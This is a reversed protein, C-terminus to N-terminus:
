KGICFSGFVEDLVDEVDVKGILVDLAHVARRIDESVFELGESGGVLRSLARSCDSFARDVALRHRERIILPSGAVRGALERGVRDILQDVGEGTVGSVGFGTNPYLDAKAQVVLDGPSIEVDDPPGEAGVLIIRLDSEMARRRTLKIGLREVPDVSERLGATDLLTVPLGAVECRVEIVDRTTGAIESTIAAPRGALRNLLTSKGVNPRGIIAVEFGERVREAFRAGDQEEALDAMVRRLLEMASELVTDPIEEDAFDIVAALFGLVKVLDRRWRGVKEGLRGQLVRLAQRRQAETEANILDGLGEIRALDMKGNEFARRTFEGPEAMRVGDFRSMAALVARTVAVSGHLHLEASTEGTYSRGAEFIIVIAQDLIDDRFRLTRVAAERPPPLRGSLTGVIEWAKPGSIRIMSIAAKGTATAPGFITDM